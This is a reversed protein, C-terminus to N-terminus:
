DCGQLILRDPITTTHLRCCRWPCPYITRFSVPPPEPSSTPSNILKLQPADLM